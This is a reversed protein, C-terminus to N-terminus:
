ILDDNFELLLRDVDPHKYLTENHRVIATVFDQGIHPAGKELYYEKCSECDEIVSKSLSINVQQIELGKKVESIDTADGEKIQM